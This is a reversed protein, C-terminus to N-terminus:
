RSGFATVDIFCGTPYAEANTKESLATGAASGEYFVLKSTATNWGIPISTAVDSSSAVGAHPILRTMRRLGFTSASIAEGGTAYNGSFTLRRSHAREAGHVMDASNAIKTATVAM